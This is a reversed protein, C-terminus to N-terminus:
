PERRERNRLMELLRSQAAEAEANMGVRKRINQSLLAVGYWTMNLQPNSAFRGATRLVEDVYDDGYFFWYQERGVFQVTVNIGGDSM